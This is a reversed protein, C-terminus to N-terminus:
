QLKRLEDDIFGISLNLVNWEYFCRDAALHNKDKKHQEYFRYYRAREKGMRRKLRHLAKKTEDSM